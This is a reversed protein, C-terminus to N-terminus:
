MATPANVWETVASSMPSSRRGQGPVPRSACRPVPSERATRAPTCGSGASAVGPAGAATSVTTQLPPAVYEVLESGTAAVADRFQDPLLNTVQHGRAMLEAAVALTPNLHGLGPMPLFLFRSV